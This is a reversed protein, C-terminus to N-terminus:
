RRRADDVAAMLRAVTLTSVDAFLAPPDLRVAFAAECALVAELLDASDLWLGGESLPTELRVDPPTRDPGAIETLIGILRTVDHAAGPM